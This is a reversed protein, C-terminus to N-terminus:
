SILEEGARYAKLLRTHKLRADESKAALGFYLSKQVKAGMCRAAIKLLSLPARIFIRGVFAPCASSTVTVAKKDPRRIRLKPGVKGWPWYVYVLLRETFRKMVATARFFNVPSALVLADAGDVQELIAAMDDEQVCEARVGVDDEQTCSRCNRCFEVHKDILDIKVTEAGHAEAGKLIEDVASDITRAKRYTGVIAVVKKAM